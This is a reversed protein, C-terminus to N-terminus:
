QTCLTKYQSRKNKADYQCGWIPLAGNDAAKRAAPVGMKRATTAAATNQTHNIIFHLAINGLALFGAIQPDNNLSAVIESIVPFITNVLGLATSTAGNKLATVLDKAFPVLAELRQLAAPSVTQLANMLAQDTVASLVDEGAAVLQSKSCGELFCTAGAVVTIGVTTAVPIEVPGLVIVFSTM